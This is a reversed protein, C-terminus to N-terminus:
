EAEGKAAKEKEKAEPSDMAPMNSPDSMDLDSGEAAPPDSAQHEGDSPQQCGIAVFTLLFLGMLSTLTRAMKTSRWINRTLCLKRVPVAWADAWPWGVLLDMEGAETRFSLGVVHASDPYNSFPLSYYPM